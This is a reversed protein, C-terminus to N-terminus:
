RLEAAERMGAEPRPPPAFCPRRAGRARDRCRGAFGHQHRRSAVPMKGSIRTSVFAAALFCPRWCGSGFAVRAQSDEVGPLWILGLIRPWCFLVLLLSREGGSARDVCLAGGNRAGVFQVDYVVSMTAYSAAFSGTGIGLPHRYFMEWGMWALDSRGSTRTSLNRDGEMSKDLRTEAFDRESQFSVLLIAVIAVGSVVALVRHRLRPLRVIFASLCVAALLMGGRSATLFTLGANALACLTSLSLWGKLGRAIPSVASVVMLGTIPFFSYANPNIYPLSDKQILFVIGGVATTLSTLTAMELWATRDGSVADAYATMGLFSALCLCHLVGLAVDRSWALEVLLLGLMFLSLRLSLSRKQVLRKIRMAAVALLFYNFTNYRLLGGTLIYVRTLGDLASWMGIGIFGIRPNRLGFAACGLSVLSLFALADFFSRAFAISWGLLILIGIVRAESGAWAPCHSNRERRECTGDVWYGDIRRGINM